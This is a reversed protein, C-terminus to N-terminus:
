MNLIQVKNVTKIDFM